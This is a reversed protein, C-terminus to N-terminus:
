QQSSSAWDHNGPLFIVEGKYSDFTNLLYILNKEAEKTGKDLSDPLGNPHILDGLIVVSSNSNEKDIHRKLLKLNEQGAPSIKIDGLLYITYLLKSTDESIDAKRNENGPSYYIKQASGILFAGLFISTFIVRYLLIKM